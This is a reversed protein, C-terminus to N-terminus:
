SGWTVDSFGLAEATLLADIKRKSTLLHHVAGDPATITQGQFAAVRRWAGKKGESYDRLALRHRNALSAAEPGRVNVSAQGAEESVVTATRVYPDSRTAVYRKRKKRLAAPVWRKVNAPTTGEARAAHTLFREESFPATELAGQKRRMRALVALARSRAARERATRPTANRRRM